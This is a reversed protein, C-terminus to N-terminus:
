CTLVKHGLMAPDFNKPRHHIFLSKPCETSTILDSLISSDKVMDFDIAKFNTFFLAKYVEQINEMMLDVTEFNILADTVSKAELLPRGINEM